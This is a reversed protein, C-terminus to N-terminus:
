SLVINMYYQMSDNQIVVVYMNSSSSFPGSVQPHQDSCFLKTTCQAETVQQFLRGTASHCTILQDSEPQHLSQASLAWPSRCM